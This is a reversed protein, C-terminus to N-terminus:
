GSKTQPPHGPEDLIVEVPSPDADVDTGIVIGEGDRAVIVPLASARRGLQGSQALTRLRDRIWSAM